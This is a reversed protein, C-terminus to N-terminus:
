TKCKEKEESKNSKSKGKLTLLYQSRVKRITKERLGLISPLKNKKLEPYEKIFRRYNKYKCMMSFHFYSIKKFVENDLKAQKFANLIFEDKELEKNKRKRFKFKNHIWHAYKDLIIIKTILSKAKRTESLTQSVSLGKEQGLELECMENSYCCKGNYNWMCTKVLCPSIILSSSIPCILAEKTKTGEEFPKINQM